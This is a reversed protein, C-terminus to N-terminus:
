LILFDKHDCPSLPPRVNHQVKIVSLNNQILLWGALVLRGLDADVVPLIVLITYGCMGINLTKQSHKSLQHNGNKRPPLHVTAM